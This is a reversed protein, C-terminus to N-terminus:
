IPGASTLVTARRVSCPTLLLFACCAASVQLWKHFDLALSDACEIGTVMHALSPCLKVLSGFAGDVHFWMQEERAIKSLATLDDVAGVGVTGATGVLLFPTLGASRDHRVAERLASLDMQHSQPNFPILRLAASGLGSMEFARTICVHAARSTYGVLQSPSRQSGVLGSTRTEVGLRATKAVLLAVFNALSSGTLMLGSSDPPFQFIQSMWRVVQQEVQMPAHDRGGLNSNLCASLMEAVVGVPTGGGHVWGLFRPHTNGTSYPRILTEFDHHVDRLSTPQFPLPEDFSQRVAAPMPRWVKEQAIGQLHALAGDLMMSSEGRFAGWDEPDLTPLM